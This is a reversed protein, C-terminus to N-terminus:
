FFSTSGEAQSYDKLIGNYIDTFGLQGWYAKGVQERMLQPYSSLQEMDCEWGTTKTTSAIVNCQSQRGIEENTHWFTFKFFHVLDITHKPDGTFHLRICVAHKINSSHTSYSGPLAKQLLLLETYQIVYVKHFITSSLHSVPTLLVFQLDVAIYM